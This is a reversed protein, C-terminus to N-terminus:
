PGFVKVITRAFQMTTNLCTTEGMRIETDIAYAAKGYVLMRLAAVCKQLTSFSLEGCCGKRLKLYDDAEEVVNVVCLFLDRGM